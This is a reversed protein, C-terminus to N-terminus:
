VDNFEYLCVKQATNQDLAVTFVKLNTDEGDEKKPVKSLLFSLPPDPHLNGREVEAHNVGKPFLLHIEERMKYNIFKTLVLLWLEAIGSDRIASVLVLSAKTGRFMM